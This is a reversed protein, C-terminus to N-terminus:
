SLMRYSPLGTLHSGNLDMWIRNANGPSHHLHLAPLAFSGLSEARCPSTVTLIMCHEPNQSTQFGFITKPSIPGFFIVFSCKQILSKFLFFVPKSVWTKITRKRRREPWTHTPSRYSSGVPVVFLDNQLPCRLRRVKYPSNVGKSTFQLLQNIKNRTATLRMREYGNMDKREYGKWDKWPSAIVKQTGLHSQQSSRYRSVLRHLLM